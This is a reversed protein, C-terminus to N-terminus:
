GDVDGGLLKKLLLRAREIRKRAASQSIGLSSSIEKDSMNHLYKLLMVERYKDPMSAIKQAILQATLKGEVQAAVNEKAPEAEDLEVVNQKHSKTYMTKAVNETVIVVYGKTRPSDASGLKDTNRIIRMFADHVADEALAKDRLIEYARNLMLNKYRLYIEEILRKDNDGALALYFTLMIRGQFQSRYIYSRFTLNQSM